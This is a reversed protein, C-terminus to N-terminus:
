TIKSKPTFPSLLHSASFLQLRTSSHLNPTQTPTLLEKLSLHTSVNNLLDKSGKRPENKEVKFSFTSYSKALQARSGRLPVQRTKFKRILFVNRCTNSEFNIQSM